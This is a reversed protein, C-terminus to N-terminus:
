SGVITSEWKEIAEEIDNNNLSSFAENDVETAKSFWFLSYNIRDKPSEIMRVTENLSSITRILNGMFEFDTEQPKPQQGISLYAEFNDINKKIYKESANAPLGLIRFPNNIIIDM